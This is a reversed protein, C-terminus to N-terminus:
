VVIYTGGTEVTITTGSAVEQEDFGVALEGDSITQNVDIVRRLRLNYMNVDTGTHNARNLFYAANFGGLLSSDDSLDATAANGSIDINYTGTLRAVPVTGANLNSANLFYTSDLGDLLGSDPSYTVSTNIRNNIDDYTFTIGTHIGDTFLMAATDQIEEPTIITDGPDGQFEPDLVGCIAIHVTVLRDNDKLTDTAEGQFAIESTGRSIAVTVNPNSITKGSVLPREIASATDYFALAEVNLITTFIPTGGSTGDNTAYFTASGTSVSKIETYYGVGSQLGIPTYVLVGGGGSTPSDATSIQYNAFNYAEQLTPVGRHVCVYYIKGAQDTAQVYKGVYTALDSQLEALTDAIYDPRIRLGFNMNTTNLIIGM